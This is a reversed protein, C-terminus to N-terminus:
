SNPSSIEHKPLQQLFRKLTPWPVVFENAGDYVKLGQTSLELREARMAQLAAFDNTERGKEHSNGVEEGGGGIEGESCQSAGFQVVTCPPRECKRMCDDATGTARLQIENAFFSRMRGTASAEMGPFLHGYLDVTLKITSHRMISQVTTIDAGSNILWSATTHRLAHFDLIEGESTELKLFDSADLEIRTQPDKVTGLWAKRAREMDERFMDVVNSPHPMAFVSSGPLKKAVLSKLKSALEVQIYQKAQKKNKTARPNVTVFPPNAQLHLKGRTLSRLENSRLGSQLALEYLIARTKGDMGFREESIETTSRLWRFEDVSLFRRVQRRDTDVNPKKVSALPDFPLKRNKTCWRTFGRIAQIYAAITRASKNANRLAQCFLNVEDADIDKMLVLKRALCIATIKNDTTQAHDSNGISAMYLRLTDKIRKSGELAIAEVRPDIVGEARLMADAELKRAMRAAATKDTTGSSKVIRKGTHDKWAIYWKCSNARKFVSVM